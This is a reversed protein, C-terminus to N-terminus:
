RKIFLSEYYQGHFAHMHELLGSFTSPNLLFQAVSIAFRIEAENSIGPPVNVSRNSIGCLLVPPFSSNSEVRKQAMRASICQGYTRRENYCIREHRLM